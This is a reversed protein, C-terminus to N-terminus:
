QEVIPDPNDDDDTEAILYMPRAKTEIYVNALYRGFVGLCLLQIGGVFLIICALSPWGAVPDGFVIARVAIFIASLLSVAFMVVGAVSSLQLPVESFSVIGEVAYRMLSFFNWKTSGAVREVNQYEIWHTDFGVWGFIGKSFRNRESLALVSDVVRRKMLRFDRAGDVIRIDSIKNIIQYFLKAFWSRVVPEGERSARYAAVQDCGSQCIENYMSMLLRPPDQLDADMVAVLDGVSHRLGALLAAEKGFNRSFAIYHVSLKPNCKVLERMISRTKDTSGDDVLVVEFSLKDNESQMLEVVKTLERMFIILTEQENYCPVVISIMEPLNAM